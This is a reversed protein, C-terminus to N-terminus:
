RWQYPYASLYGELLGCEDLLKVLTYRTRYDKGCRLSLGLLAADISEEEPTMDAGLARLTERIRDIPPLAGIVAQIDGFRAQARRVRRLQEEWALFDGPNERMIDGGGEEGYAHIVWRARDERSLRRRKIDAPDLRSLDERAFRTFLPWVLLTAVGVSAGHRPPHQGRQLLKMEWFQAINHEVSAVARTNGIVMITLGSLILAEMLLRIGKETRRTIEDVSDILKEAAEMVIAACAPCYPEDNLISGLLWDANAIYKGLVDGVGSAIMEPPATALVDLDCVIVEPCVGARHIKVRRLLLPSVVSTYGDMSPATAICAFPLGTRAANVRTIDTISGSGVSLLFSTEPQISLLVEGCATEDPLMEGDRRIICRVVSFGAMELKRAVKEGALAWTTDDAVLVCRKGWGRHEIYSPINEILDKGIYIDQAPLHHACGCDCHFQPLTLRGQDDYLAKM